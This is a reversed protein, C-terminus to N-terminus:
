YNFIKLLQLDSRGMMICARKYATIRRLQDYENEAQTFRLKAGAGASTKRLRQWQLWYAFVFFKVAEVNETSPLVGFTDAFIREGENIAAQLDAVEQEGKPSPIRYFESTNTYDQITTMTTLKLFQEM